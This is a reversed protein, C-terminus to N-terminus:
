SRCPLLILRPHVRIFASGDLTFDSIRLEFDSDIRARAIVGISTAAPRAHRFVWESLLDYRGSEHFRPGHELTAGCERCQGEVGGLYAYRDSVEFTVEHMALIAPIAKIRNLKLDLYKTRPLAKQLEADNRDFWKAWPEIDPVGEIVSKLYALHSKM